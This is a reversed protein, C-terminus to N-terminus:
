EVATTSCHWQELRHNRADSRTKSRITERELVWVAQRRAVVTRWSDSQESRGGATQGRSWRKCRCTLDGPFRSSWPADRVCDKFWRNGGLASVTWAQYRSGALNAVALVRTSDPSWSGLGWYMDTGRLSEPQPIDRVEGSELLKLHLGDSDGYALYKGDPSMSSALVPNETPNVTIQQQKIERMPEALQRGRWLLAGVIDAVSRRCNPPAPLRLWCCVSTVLQASM